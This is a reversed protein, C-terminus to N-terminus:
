REVTTSPLPIHSLFFKSFIWGLKADLLAYAPTVQRPSIPKTLEEIRSEPVPGITENVIVSQSLYDFRRTLLAKLFQFETMGIFALSRFASGPPTEFNGDPLYAQNIWYEGSKEHHRVHLGAINGPEQKYLLDNTTSSINDSDVPDAIAHWAYSGLAGWLGRGVARTCFLILAGVPSHISLLLLLGYWIVMGRLFQPLKRRRHKWLYLIVDVGFVVSLTTRMHYSCFDIFSTRESRLTTQIDDPGNDEVHHIYVHQVRYFSPQRGALPNLIWRLFKSTCTLILRAIGKTEKAPRFHDNHIDSHDVEEHLASTLILVAYIYFAANLVNPAEPYAMAIFAVSLTIGELLVFRIFIASEPHRLRSSYWREPWRKQILVYVENKKQPFYNLAYFARVFLVLSWSWLIVTLIAEHWQLNNNDRNALIGSGVVGVLGAFFVPVPFRDVIEGTKKWRFLPYSLIFPIYFLNIVLFCFSTYFVNVCAGFLRGPTVRYVTPKISDM